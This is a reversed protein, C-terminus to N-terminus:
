GSSIKKRYHRRAKARNGCTTMDCWRRAHNRTKDLFLWACDSAACIRVKALEDSVLLDAAARAVPWLMADPLPNHSAWDWVFRGDKEKLRVYSSGQDLFINLTAMAQAPAEEKAAVAAFIEFLAERLRIARELISAAKKPDRMALVLLQTTRSPPLVGTLESWRVLESYDPLREIAASGRWSVTNAFDLAVHGGSLDFVFRKPEPETM